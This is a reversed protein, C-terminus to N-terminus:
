APQIRSQVQEWTRTTLFSEEMDAVMRAFKVMPTAFTLTNAPVLPRASPDFMGIVSRPSPQDKELYPYQVITGCGAGFPTMVRNPDAEEFGALAFLGALVDPTAFFIVIEPQDAATLNDWRKFVIYKAPAVFTPMRAMLEKVLQPTKKYREGALKGPIGCSLFYEFNPMIEQSFGLYRKAGSCTAADRDFALTEGRRVRALQGIICARGAAPVLQARAGEDDTYYAVIPLEAAAFYKRWLSLFKDRLGTDVPM